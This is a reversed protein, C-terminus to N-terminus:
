ERLEALLEDDSMLIEETTPPAIGLFKYEGAIEKECAVIQRQRFIREKETRAGNFRARERNLRSQLAELHTLDTMAMEMEIVM